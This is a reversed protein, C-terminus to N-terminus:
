YNIESEIQGNEDWYTWFGDQKGDNYNGESKKQGNPYWVTWLGDVYGTDYNIKEEIQGDAYWSSWKGHAKGDKWNKATQMQDDAKWAAYWTYTTKGVLNGQIYHAESEMRGQIFNRESEIQGNDHWRTWSGDTKGDKYTGELKGDKYSGESNKQDNEYKYTWLGDKKGNKYNGGEPQNDVSQISPNKEKLNKSVGRITRTTGTARVAPNNQNSFQKLEVGDKYNKESATQGNPFWRFLKGDLKGNKYIGEQFKRGNDFWYTWIGYKKGDKYNVESKKQGNEYTCLSEGTFPVQQNRLYVVGNIEQANTQDICVTNGYSNLSILISFLLILPKKM